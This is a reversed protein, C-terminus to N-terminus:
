LGAAMRESRPPAAAPRYLSGGSRSGLAVLGTTPLDLAHLLEGLEVANAPSLRDVDCAVLLADAHRAVLQGQISGLLPPCEVVVRDYPSIELELFLDSFAEGSLLAGGTRTPAGAALVDFSAGRVSAAQTNRAVDGGSPSTGPPLAGLLEVLGPARSLGLLEHVGPRRLDASVLLTRSGSLAFSRALGAALRAKRDGPLAGAVVVIRSSAPLQMSLATQLEDYAEENRARARGLQRRSVGGLVPFGALAALERDGSVRPALQGLALAALVGLFLAAFVAFITNRVPRPASPQAPAQAPEVLSLETGLGAERVNLESLRAQIAQAETSPATRLDQLLVHRTRAVRQLDTARQRAIFARAVGNAIAAAGAATDDAGHVDVINADPDVTASVKDELSGPTEGRLRQAARVRVDRTTVLARVTALRRTVAAVDSPETGAAGDDMVIRATAEFRKPLASSVVYVTASMSLVIAAILGLSRRLSAAYRPVDVPDADWHSDVSWGSHTPAV